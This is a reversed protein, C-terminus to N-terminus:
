LLPAFIAFTDFSMEFANSLAEDLLHNCISVFLTPEDLVRTYVVM